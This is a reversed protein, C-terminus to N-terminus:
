VKKDEEQLAVTGEESPMNEKERTCYVFGWRAVFWKLDLMIIIGM